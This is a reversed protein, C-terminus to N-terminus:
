TSVQLAAESAAEHSFLCFPLSVVKNWASLYLECKDGNVEDKKGRGRRKHREAEQCLKILCTFRWSQQADLVFPAIGGGTWVLVTNNQLGSPKLKDLWYLAQLQQTM